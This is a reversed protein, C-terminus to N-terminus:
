TPKKGVAAGGVSRSKVSSRKVLLVSCKGTPKKLGLRGRFRAPCTVVVDLEIRKVPDGYVLGDLVTM